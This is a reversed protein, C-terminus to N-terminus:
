RASAPRVPSRVTFLCMECMVRPASVMAAINTSAPHASLPPASVFLDATVCGGCTRPLVGALGPSARVALGDRGIGPVPLVLCGEGDFAAFVAPAFCGPVLLGCADDPEFDAGVPFSREFCGGLGALPVLASFDSGCFVDACFAAGCFIAVLSGM